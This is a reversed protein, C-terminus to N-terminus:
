ALKPDSGLARPLRGGAAAVLELDFLPVRLPARFSRPMHVGPLPVTLTLPDLLRTM